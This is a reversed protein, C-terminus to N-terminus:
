SYFISGLLVWCCLYVGHHMTCPPSSAYSGKDIYIMKRLLSSCKTASKHSIIQLKPSEILRRCGTVHWKGLGINLYIWMHSVCVCVFVCVCVYVYMCTVRCKQCVHTRTHFRQTVYIFSGRWTRYLHTMDRIHILWTVYIFSDCRIQFSHTMDYIYILWTVYSVFSVHWMHSHTMDCMHILWMTDSIFSDHWIYLHAV